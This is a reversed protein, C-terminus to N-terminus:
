RVARAALVIALFAALSVAAGFTVALMTAFVVVDRAGTLLGPVRVAAALAGSPGLLLGALVGIRLSARLAIHPLSRGARAPALVFRDVGADLYGLARLKARLADVDPEPPAM